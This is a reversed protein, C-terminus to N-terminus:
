VNKSCMHPTSHINNNNNIIIIITIIKHKKILTREVFKWRQQWRLSKGEHLQYIEVLTLGYLLGIDISLLKQEIILSSVM